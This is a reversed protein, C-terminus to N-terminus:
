NKDCFMRIKIPKGILIPLITMYDIMTAEDIFLVNINTPRM